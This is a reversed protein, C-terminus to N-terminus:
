KSNYQTDIYHYEVDDFLQETNMGNSLFKESQCFRKFDGIYVKDNYRNIGHNDCFWRGYNLGNNRSESEVFDQNTYNPWWPYFGALSGFAKIDIMGTEFPHTSSNYNTQKNGM